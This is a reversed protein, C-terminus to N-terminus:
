YEGIEELISKCSDQVLQHLTNYVNRMHSFQQLEMDKKLGRARMIHGHNDCSKLKLLRPSSKAPSNVDESISLIDISLTNMNGCTDSAVIAKCGPFMCPQRGVSENTLCGREGVPQATCPGFPTPIRVNETFYKTKKNKGM